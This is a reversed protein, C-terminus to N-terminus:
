PGCNEALRPIQGKGCFKLLEASNQLIQSIVLTGNKDIAQDTGDRHRAHVEVLELVRNFKLTM